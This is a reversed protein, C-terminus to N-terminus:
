SAVSVQAIWRDDTPVEALTAAAGVAFDVVQSSSSGPAIAFLVGRKSHDGISRWTAPATTGASALRDLANPGTAHLIGLQAPEDGHAPFWTVEPVKPGRATFMRRLVSTVPLHEPDVWPSITVWEKGTSEASIRDLDAIVESTDGTRFHVQRHEIGM